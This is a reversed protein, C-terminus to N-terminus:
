GAGGWELGAYLLNGGDGTISVIRNFLSDGSKGNDTTERLVLTSDLAFIHSGDIAYVALYNGDGSIRQWSKGTDRTEFIGGHDIPVFPDGHSSLYGDAVSTFYMDSINGLGPFAMTDYLSWSKGSDITRYLRPYHRKPGLKKTYLVPYDIEYAFGIKPNVFYPLVTSTRYGSDPWVYFRGMTGTWATDCRTWHGRTQAYTGVAAALLLGALCITHLNLRKM